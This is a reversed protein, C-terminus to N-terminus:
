SRRAAPTREDLALEEAVLAAREGAGRGRALAGELRRLPAREKQVLDALQRQAECALSSRTSSSRRTVRSPPVRASGTSVRTTAAM